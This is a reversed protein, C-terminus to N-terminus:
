TRGLNHEASGQAAGRTQDCVDILLFRFMALFLFRIAAAILTAASAPPPAPAPATASVCPEEGLVAVVAAEDGVALLTAAFEVSVTPCIAFCDDEPTTSISEMEFPDECDGNGSLLPLEDASPVPKTYSSLPSM